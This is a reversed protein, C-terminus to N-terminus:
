TCAGMNNFVGEKLGKIGKWNLFLKGTETPCSGTRDLIGIADTFFECGGFSCPMADDDSLIDLQGHCRSAAGHASCLVSIMCLAFLAGAPSWHLMKQVVRLANLQRHKVETSGSAAEEAGKIIIIFPSLTRQASAGAGPRNHADLSCGFVGWFNCARVASGERALRQYSHLSGAPQRLQNPPPATLRSAGM